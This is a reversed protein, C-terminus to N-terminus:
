IHILSLAEVLQKSTQQLELSVLGLVGQVDILNEKERYTQLKKESADLQIRLDTLRTTLWTAAEQITAMKASLYQEIYVDGVMNAIQAALKPNSSEFSINVLQTKNVPSISLKQAFASVMTNMQRVAIDEESAPAGAQEAPLFPVSERITTSVSAKDNTSISEADIFAPNNKLNLREIVTIAIQDSKLLEIQTLYFETRNSNIGVIEEFSVAKNEKAEILLTATARYIPTLNMAYIAALGSVFLALFIIRWKYKNLLDLYLRLDIVEEQPNNAKEHMPNMNDASM